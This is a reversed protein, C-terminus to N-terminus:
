SAVIPEAHVVLRDGLVIGATEAAGAPLEVMAFARWSLVIRRGPVRRRIGVVTGDRSVSVVDIAFRMGFTHIGQTPAIVLAHGPALDGRGALGRRRSASSAALEVHTAVDRASGALRLGFRGDGGLAPALFHPGSM